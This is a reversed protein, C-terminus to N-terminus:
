GPPQCLLRFPTFLTTKRDSRDTFPSTVATVEVKGVSARMDPYPTLHDRCQIHMCYPRRYPLKAMTAIRYLKGSSLRPRAPPAGAAQPPGEPSAHIRRLSSNKGSAPSPRSSIADRPLHPKLKADHKGAKVTQRSSTKWSHKPTNPTGRIVTGSV